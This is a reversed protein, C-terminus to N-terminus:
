VQMDSSIQRELFLASTEVSELHQFIVSWCHADVAHKTM